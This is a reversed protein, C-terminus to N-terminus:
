KTVFTGRLTGDGSSSTFSGEFTGSKKNEFTLALDMEHVLFPNERPLDMSGFALKAEPGHGQIFYAYEGKNDYERFLADWNLEYRDGERLKAVFTYKVLPLLMGSGDTLTAEFVKGALSPPANTTDKKSCSVVALAVCVFVFFSLLRYM